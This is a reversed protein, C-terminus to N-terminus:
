HNTKERKRPVPAFAPDSVPRDHGLAEKRYDALFLNQCITYLEILLPPKSISKM